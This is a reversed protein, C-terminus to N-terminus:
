QSCGVKASILVQTEIAHSAEYGLARGVSERSKAPLIFDGPCAFSGVAGFVHQFLGFEGPM